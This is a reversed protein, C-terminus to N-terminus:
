LDPQQQRCLLEQKAHYTSYITYLLLRLQVAIWCSLLYCCCFAFLFATHSMVLTRAAASGCRRGNYTHDGSAAQLGSVAPCNALVLPTSVALTAVQFM